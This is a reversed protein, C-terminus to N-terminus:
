VFIVLRIISRIAKRSLNQILPSWNIGSLKWVIKLSILNKGIVHNQTKQPSVEIAVCVQIHWAFTAFSPRSVNFKSIQVIRHLVWSGLAGRQVNM